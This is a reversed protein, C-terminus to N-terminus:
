RFTDSEEVKRIAKVFSTKSDTLLEARQKAKQSMEGYYEKDESYRIIKEYMEDYDAVHFDPGAGVGVDGYDMTVVPLGKYLAEACSTGGGVRKPNLYADCCENVALVDEQFGLYASQKKLPEWKEVLSDYTDLVGMFAIFIGKEALRVLVRICEEDVEKDLRGGVLLVVFQNEPLGLQQRTYHHTQPNFSSTFLSEVMHEEPLGHKRMWARDDDNVRRGIIQFTSNTIMRDSPVTSLGIVPVINSCLDGVLSGGVTMIFYPKLRQVVDLLEQVVSVQPMEDPCQFFDFVKGEYDWKNMDNYEEIYSGVVEDFCPIRQYSSLLEATNIIFVKKNMYEDLIYCRDLLTKTPGHNMDLIQSTMVIVFDRNREEKPIYSYGQNLETWYLDYIQEYLDDTLDVIESDRVEGHLFSYCGIQKYLYLRNEKTFNDDEMIHKIMEKYIELSNTAQLLFTMFYYYVSETEKALICGKEALISANEKKYEITNQMYGTLVALLEGLTIRGNRTDEMVALVREVTEVCEM